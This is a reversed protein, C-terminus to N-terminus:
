RGIIGARDARSGQRARPEAEEPAEAPAADCPRRLRRVPRAALIDDASRGAVVERIGAHLAAYLATMYSQDNTVAAIPDAVVYRATLSIRLAVGDATLIEQGPVTIATPRGDLLQIETFPRLAVHTGASLLGILHGQRYRLG